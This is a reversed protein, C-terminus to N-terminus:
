NCHETLPFVDITISLGVRLILFVLVQWLYLASIPVLFYSDAKVKWDPYPGFKTKGVCM